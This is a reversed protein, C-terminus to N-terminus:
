FHKVSNRLYIKVAYFEEDRDFFSKGVHVEDTIEVRYMKKKEEQEYYEAIKVAESCLLNEFRCPANEGLGHRRVLDFFASARKELKLLDIEGGENRFQSKGFM